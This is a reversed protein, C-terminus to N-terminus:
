NEEAPGAPDPEAVRVRAPRMIREGVRYGPQLV